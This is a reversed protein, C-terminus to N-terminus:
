IYVCATGFEKMAIRLMNVDAIIMCYICDGCSSSVGMTWNFM